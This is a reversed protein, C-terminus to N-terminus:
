GVEAQQRAKKLEENRKRNQAVEKAQQALGRWTKAARQARERVNALKAHKAEKTAEKAREDYFEFTHSM